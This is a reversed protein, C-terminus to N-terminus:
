VQVLLATSQCQEEQIFLLFEEDARGTATHRLAERCQDGLSPCAHDDGGARRSEASHDDRSRHPLKTAAAKVVLTDVREPGCGRMDCKPRVDLRNFLFPSTKFRWLM